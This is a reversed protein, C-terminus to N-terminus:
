ERKRLCYLKGGKFLQFITSLKM